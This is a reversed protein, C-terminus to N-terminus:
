FSPASGMDDDSSGSADDSPADTDGSDLNSDGGAGGTIKQKITGKIDAITNEKLTEDIISDIDLWDLSPLFKRTLKAKLQNKVDDSQGDDVGLSKTDIVNVINEVLSQVNSLQENLMNFGLNAPAPFKISIGNLDINHLSDVDLLEDQKKLKKDKYRTSKNVLSSNSKYYLNYLKRLLESYGHSPIIQESIIERLYRGNQMSLTKAFEINEADAVYAAPIGMGSYINDGLFKIFDNDIPTPQPTDVSEISFPKEGNIVPVFMKQMTGVKNIISNLDMSQISGIEKSKFDRVIQHVSGSPDNDRGVEVYIAQQPAGTMVNEMTATIISAIYLKCFFLVNDFISQGRDIKVVEEPTLYIIRIRQNDNNLKKLALSHYIAMKLTENKRILKINTQNSLKNAFVNAMFMLRAKEVEDINPTGTSNEINNGKGGSTNSLPIDKGSSIIGALLAGNTQIHGTSALNTNELGNDSGLDTPLVTGDPDIDIIDLMLYGLIKGDYELPVINSMNVRKLLPKDVSNFKVEQFGDTQGKNAVNVKQSFISALEHNVDANSSTVTGKLISDELLLNKSDGILFTEQIFKDMRDVKNKVDDKGFLMTFENLFSRTGKNLTAKTWDNTHELLSSSEHISLSSDNSLVHYGFNPKEAHSELLAELAEEKSKLSADENLLRNIEGHLSLVTFYLVGDKIYTIIDNLINQNLDYEDLLNDINESIKDHLEAPILTNDIIPLLSNKSFDDPSIISAAYTKLVLRMKPIIKIILNYTALREQQKAKNSALLENAYAHNLEVIRRKLEEQKGKANKGKIKLDKDEGNVMRSVIDLMSDYATLDTKSGSSLQLQITADVKDHINDLLKNTRKELDIIEKTKGYQKRALRENNNALINQLEKVQSSKINTNFAELPDAFLNVGKKKQEKNDAM